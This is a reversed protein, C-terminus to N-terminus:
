ESSPTSVIHIMNQYRMSREQTSKMTFYITLFSKVSQFSESESQLLVGMMELVDRAHHDHGYKTSNFFYNQITEYNCLLKDFVFDFFFLKM